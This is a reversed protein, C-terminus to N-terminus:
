IRSAVQTILRRLWTHAADQSLRAHWVLRIEFGPLKVPTPVVRVPYARAARRALREPATSIFSSEAVVIPAILFHPVRVAVRRTHGLRGLETDVLSGPNGGPAVVVHELELYRELTLKRRLAPHGRRLLCVFREKMLLQSALYPRTVLHAPASPLMALDVREDELQEAALASPVIELEIGPAERELRALLSPLLVTQEYDAMGVVFRRRASAPEFSSEGRLAESLEGLGRELRPLLAEARPTLALGRGSRVLLPDGFLARLRALAHSTASQSMGLARSARTVHRESLLARLVFLLNLDVGNLARDHIMHM